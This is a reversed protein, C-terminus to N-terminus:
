KDQAIGVSSAAFVAAVTLLAFPISRSRWAVVMNGGEFTRPSGSYLTLLRHCSPTFSGQLKVLPPDFSSRTKGWPCHFFFTRSHLTNAKCLRSKWSPALAALNMKHVM